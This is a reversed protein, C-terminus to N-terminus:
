RNLAILEFPVELLEDAMVTVVAGAGGATEAAVTMVLLENVAFQDALAAAVPYKKSADDSLKAVNRM